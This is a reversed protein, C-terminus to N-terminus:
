VGLHKAGRSYHRGAATGPPLGRSRWWRYLFAGAAALVMIASLQHSAPGPAGGAGDQYALLIPQQRHGRMGRPTTSSAAPSLSARAEVYMRVAQMGSWLDALAAKPRARALGPRSAELACISITAATAVHSHPADHFSDPILEAFVMWIM